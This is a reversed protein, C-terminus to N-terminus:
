EEKRKFRLILNGEETVSVLEINQVKDLTPTTSSHTNYDFIYGQSNKHYALIIDSDHM